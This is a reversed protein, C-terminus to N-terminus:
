DDDGAPKSAKPTRPRQQAENLVQLFRLWGPNELTVHFKGGGSFMIEAYTCNEEVPHNRVCAILDTNVRYSDSGGRQHLVYFM